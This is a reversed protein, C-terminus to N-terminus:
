DNWLKRRVLVYGGTGATTTLFLVIFLVVPAIVITAFTILLEESTYINGTSDHIEVFATIENQTIGSIEGKWNLSSQQELDQSSWGNDNYFVKVSNIGENDEADVSFSVKSNQAHFNYNLLVPLNIDRFVEGLANKQVLNDGLIFSSSFVKNQDDYM